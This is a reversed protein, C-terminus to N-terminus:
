LVSRRYPMLTQDIFPDGTASGAMLLPIFEIERNHTQKRKINGARIARADAGDAVPSEKRQAILRYMVDKIAPPTAGDELWGFTGQIRVNRKGRPWTISGDSYISFQGELRLLSPNREQGEVSAEYGDSTLLDWTQRNGAYDVEVSTIAIPPAPLHLHKTGAGSRYLYDSGTYSKEYFWCRCFRDIARAAIKAAQEARDDSMTSEAIGAARIEALSVYDAAVLAM